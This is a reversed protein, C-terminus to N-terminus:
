ARLQRVFVISDARRVVEVFGLDGYFQTARRNAIQTDLRYTQVGAESLFEEFAAVLKRGIGLGQVGPAVVIATLVARVEHGAVHVPRAIANGQMWQWMLRPRMIMEIVTRLLRRPPMARLLRWSFSAADASGSVVGAPRGDVLAVGIYCSPDASMRRYLYQLHDEGLRANLTYGMGAIHICVVEHLFNATLRIVETTETAIV